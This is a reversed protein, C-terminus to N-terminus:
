KELNMTEEINKIHAPTSMNFSSALSCLCSSNYKRQQYEIVPASPHFYVKRTKITNVIPVGFIQFTNQIMVGLNIKICNETSM